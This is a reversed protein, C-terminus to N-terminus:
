MIGLGKKEQIWLGAARVGVEKWIGEFSKANYKCTQSRNEQGIQVPEIAGVQLGTVLVGKERKM